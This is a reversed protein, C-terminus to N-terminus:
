REYKNVRRNWEDIVFNQVVCPSVGGNRYIKRGSAGCDNCKVFYANDDKRIKAYGACFPCLKIKKM